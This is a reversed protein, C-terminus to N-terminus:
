HYAENPRQPNLGVPTLWITGYVDIDNGLIDLQLPMDPKAFPGGGFIYSSYDEGYWGSIFGRGSFSDFVAGETAAASKLFSTGNEFTGSVQVLLPGGPYPIDLSSKGFNYFVVTLSEKNRGIVDFHWRACVTDNLLAMLDFLELTGVM